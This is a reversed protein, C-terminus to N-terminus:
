KFEIRAPESQTCQISETMGSAITACANDSATQVCAAQDSGMANSCNTRGKYDMCVRCEVKAEKVVSWTMWAVPVGIFFLALLINKLHKM